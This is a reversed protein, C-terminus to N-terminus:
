FIARVQCDCTFKFLDVYKDVFVYDNTNRDVVDDWVGESLMLLFNLEAALLLLLGLLRRGVAFLLSSRSDLQASWGRIGEMLHLTSASSLSLSLDTVRKHIQKLLRSNIM